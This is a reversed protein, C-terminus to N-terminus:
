EEREFKEIAQIIKERIEPTTAERLKAAAKLVNVLNELHPIVVLAIERRSLEGLNFKEIVYDFGDLMM